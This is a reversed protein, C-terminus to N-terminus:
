YGEDNLHRSLVVVSLSSTADVSHHCIVSLDYRDVRGCRHSTRPIQFAERAGPAYHLPAIISYRWSSLDRAINVGHRTQLVYMVDRRLEVGGAKM